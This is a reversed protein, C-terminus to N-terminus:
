QNLLKEFTASRMKAGGHQEQAIRCVPTATKYHKAEVM